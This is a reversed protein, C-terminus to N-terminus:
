IKITSSDLRMDADTENPFPSSKLSEGFSCVWVTRRERESPQQQSRHTNFKDHCSATEIARSNLPSFVEIMFYVNVHYINNLRRKELSHSSVTRQLALVDASRFNCGPPSRRMTTMSFQRSLLMCLHFNPRLPFQHFAM